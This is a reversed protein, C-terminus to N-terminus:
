YEGQLRGGGAGLRWPETLTIDDATAATYETNDPDFRDAYGDRKRLGVSRISKRVPATAAHALGALTLDGALFAALEIRYREWLRQSRSEQDLGATSLNVAEEACAAAFLNNLRALVDFATGSVAPTTYGAQALIMNLAAYGDSLFTAVQTSTPITSATYGGVFHANIGEIGAESGYTAM